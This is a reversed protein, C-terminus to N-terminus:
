FHVAFPDAEKSAGDPVLPYLPEKYFRQWKRAASMHDAAPVHERMEPDSALAKLRELVMARHNEEAKKEAAIEEETKMVEVGCPNLKALADGQEEVLRIKDLLTLKSNASTETGVNSQDGCYNEIALAKERQIFHRMFIYAGEAGIQVHPAEGIFGFRYDLDHIIKQYKMSELVGYRRLRPNPFHCVKWWQSYRLRKAYVAPRRLLISTLHM